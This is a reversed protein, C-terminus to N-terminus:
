FAYRVRCYPLRETLLRCFDEVLGRKISLKYRVNEGGTESVKREQLDPRWLLKEAQPHWGMNVEHLRENHTLFIVEAALQQKTQASLAEDIMEFLEAYEELWNDYYIVPGFNINVEYGAEVFDNMAGIREAVTSTRVDVVRAVRPPLLSFRIRTKGQPDYGLLDRNVYKTAFTAKANPLRRFLEILDRINDGILADVSCDSNTGLEYVWLREDAQTAKPKQGQKTAHREIHLCIQEINVFVSIPNAFGKRRPVYCYSCAMACGSAHSPAVFDCSRAYPTCQLSKKVGLVLVTRKIETWREISGENGHLIPINWHSPVKIRTAEPYRGLIERGRKYEMVNPEHYITSVQLLRNTANCEETERDEEGCDEKM